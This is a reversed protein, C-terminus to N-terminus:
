EVVVVVLFLVALRGVVRRDGEIQRDRQTDRGGDDRDGQEHEEIADHRWFSVRVEFRVLDIM